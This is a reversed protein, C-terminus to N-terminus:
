NCRKIGNNTKIYSFDLPANDIVEPATANIDKWIINKCNEENICVKLSDLMVSANLDSNCKALDYSRSDIARSIDRYSKYHALSTPMTSEKFQRVLYKDSVRGGFISGAFFVCILIVFLIIVKLFRNEFLKM